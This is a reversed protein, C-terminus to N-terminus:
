NPTQAMGYRFAIVKQVWHAREPDTGCREVLSDHIAEGEAHREIGHLHMGLALMAENVEDAIDPDSRAGFREVAKGYTIMAEELRRLEILEHAQGTLARSVFREMMTKDRVVGYRAEGFRRDVERYSTLADESRGLQARLEGAECLAGAVMGTMRSGGGYLEVVEDLTGLAEDERGLEVLFEAKFRMARATMAGLATEHEKGYRQVIEECALIAKEFQGTGAQLWAIADLAKWVAWRKEQDDSQSFREVIARHRLRPLRNCCSGGCYKGLRRSIRKGDGVKVM